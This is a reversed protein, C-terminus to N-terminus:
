AESADTARTESQRGVPRLRVEFRAGGAEGDTVGITWGHAETIEKVIALGFGTGEETGSVGPEFISDRMEAPIGTGDDEYYFGYETTGIEIHPAQANHEVSNRILNSFLDILRSEDAEGSFSDVIEYTAEGTDVSKWAKEFTSGFDVDSTENISEGKKALQLLNEIFAEMRRLSAAAKELHESDREERALEVQGQAVNLPNRLDHGLVGAFRELRENKREIEREYEKKDTIFRTVGILGKIEGDEGYWPVKSTLTWDDNEPNYEEKNHIPEGEEIVHMDDAYSEEALEPDYLELDTKGIADTTMDDYESMLLHRGETDKVYLSAPVQEFIQNLLTEGLRLSVDRHSKVLTSEDTGGNQARAGDVLNTIRNALLTYQESGVEKQLYDSVGMSIADSAIEESGKGTFLLFPIDPHTSRVMEFFEFGNTNPMEYDSVVCDVDTNRLIELGESPSGASIVSLRDNERELSQATVELFGSDDDVHLVTIPRM